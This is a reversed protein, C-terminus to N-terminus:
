KFKKLNLDYFYQEVAEKPNANRIYIEKRIIEAQILQNYIFTSMDQINEYTHWHPIIMLHVGEEKCLRAKRSDRELQKMFYYSNKHFHPYVHHLGNYEFALRYPKCFGDLELRGLFAPRCSLFPKQVFHQFFYRTTNESRSM